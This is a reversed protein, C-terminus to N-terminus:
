RVHPHNLFFIFIHIHFLQCFGHSVGLGGQPTSEGERRTSLPTVDALPRPPHTWLYYFM